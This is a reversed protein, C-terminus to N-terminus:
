KGKRRPYKSCTAFHPMHRTAGIVPPAGKAYVTVAGGDHPVSVNGGPHPDPDIPM